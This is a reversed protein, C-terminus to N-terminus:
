AWMWKTGSNREGILSIQKVVGTHNQHKGNVQFAKNVTNANNNFEEVSLRNSWGLFTCFFMTLSLFWILKQRSLTLLSGRPGRLPSNSRSCSKNPTTMTTRTNYSSCICVISTIIHLQYLCCAEILSRGGQLTIVSSAHQSHTHRRPTSSNWQLRWIVITLVFSM